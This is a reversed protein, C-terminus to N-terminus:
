AGPRLIWAPLEQGQRRLPEITRVALTIVDYHEKIEGTALWPGLYPHTVPPPGGPMITLDIIGTGDDLTLFQMLRGQTTRMSRHAAMLGVVAVCQGVRRSLDVSTALPFGARGVKPLCSEFLRILPLRVSIGLLRFEERARAHQGSPPPQWPPNLEQSFLEPAGPRVRARDQWTAELLLAHRSEGFLELAGSGALLALSEPTLFARQRLDALSGYPGNLSRNVLLRRMSAGDFGAISALGVRVGGGALLFDAASRNVCPPLIMVGARRAAEAYVWSSYMGQNNNLVATWFVAPHHAKLWALQWAIFGYSVAHSKCFSYQNFRELQGWLEDLEGITLPSRAALRFFEQKLLDANQSDQCRAIRKRLVDAEAVPLGTVREIVHLSDDEFVMLGHTAPLWDRLAAPVDKLPELGRRRRVFREKMGLGSAAPRVLALSEIVAEVGGPRMQVLLHRMAPSELQVVGLTDGRCLLKVTSIDAGPPPPAAFGLMEILRRAEDLAGLARNGLLDIKVLGVREVGNKDLQTMLVGSGARMVPVFNSAPGQSVIIGGPHLSMNRPRGVLARGAALLRTWRSPELPFGAPALGTWAGQSLLDGACVPLTKELASAQMDSLGHLKCAERFASRPQLMQHTAIRVCRDKGFRHIAWDIVEDRVKWDFDLDIDPLDVRGSHLFRALPLNFRLPDVDTIGLLHCVLSNGASGRLALTHGASRAHRSISQVLLFYDELGCKGIIALEELLRNAARECHELGRMRMGRECRRRLVTKASLDYRLIAKPLHPGTPLVDSRTQEALVRAGALAAPIDGFRRHLEAVGVLHHEPFWELRDPLSDILLGASVARVLRHVPYEDATGLIAGTSAALPVGCAEAMELLRREEGPPLCGPTPRVVLAWVRGPYRNALASLPSAWPVLLHLHEAEELLWSWLASAGSTGGDLCVRSVLRCMERWGAPEAILVVCWAGHQRLTAGLLPRLGAQTAADHFQIVGHLGNIDTLALSRLGLRVAHDVLSQPSATGELLSWWSHAHVAVM